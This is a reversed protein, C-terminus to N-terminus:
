SNPAFLSAMVIPSTQDEGAVEPVPDFQMPIRYGIASHKRQRNYYTEIYEFISSTAQRRTGYRERHVLEVKM